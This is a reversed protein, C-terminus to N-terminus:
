RVEALAARLGRAAEEPAVANISMGTSLEFGAPTEMRPVLQLHWLFIPEEADGHPASRVLLNFDPDGAAVRLSRLVDRLLEGLEPLVGDPVAGFWPQRARPLIWTEYPARAAFPVLAVFRGREAVVRDGERLEADRLDEYLHRGTEEYHRHAVRRRRRWEPPTVPMGVIQSHPHPLSIGAHEGFNKFVSVAEVGPEAELATYRERWARLFGAVRDVPMTDIREDHRPTEVVVEHAGAAPMEPPGGTGDGRLAGDLAPYLNPIVRQEWGGDSGTTRLIEPPTRDENGPCFPCDPDREDLPERRPRTAHSPREARRPAIIVWEDTVPDHRLSSTGATM